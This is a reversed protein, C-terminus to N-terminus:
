PIRQPTNQAPNSGTGLQGGANWGWGWRTGDTKIALTYGCWGESVGLEYRGRGAGAHVAAHDHRRRDPWLRQSGWAWIPGDPRVVANHYSGAAVQVSPTGLPAVPSPHIAEMGICEM